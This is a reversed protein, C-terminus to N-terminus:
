GLILRGSVIVFAWAPLCCDRIAPVSASPKVEVFPIVRLDTVLVTRPTEILKCSLGSSKARLAHAIM